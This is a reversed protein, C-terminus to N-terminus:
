GPPENLRATPYSVDGVKAISNQLVALVPHVPSETIVCFKGKQPVTRSIM